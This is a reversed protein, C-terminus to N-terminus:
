VCKKVIDEIRFKSRMNLSTPRPALALIEKMSTVLLGRLEVSARPLLKAVEFLFDVFQTANEESIESKPQVITESLDSIVQQISEMIYKTPVLGRVYLLTLFNAYGRRKKKQSAWSITKQTFEPDEVSPFTLTDNTNYLEGFMGIQIEFDDKVEPIEKCVINALDALTVGFSGSGIGRSFLLTSARLRFEVDRRKLIDIGEKSLEVLTSASVKNFISMLTEYDPDGEEGIRRVYDHVRTKRWEITDEVRHQRTRSPVQRPIQVVPLKAIIDKTEQSLPAPAGYRMSWVLAATITM